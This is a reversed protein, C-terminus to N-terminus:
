EYTCHKALHEQLLTFGDSQALTEVDHIKLLFPSANTPTTSPMKAAAAATSTKLPNETATSNGQGDHPMACLLAHWREEIGGSLAAM